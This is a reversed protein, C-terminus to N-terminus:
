KGGSSSHIDWEAAQNAADERSYEQVDERGRVRRQSVYHEGTGVTRTILDESDIHWAGESLQAANVDLPLGPQVIVDTYGRGNPDPSPDNIAQNNIDRVFFGNQAHLHDVDIVGPHPGVIQFEQQPVDHPQNNQDLITVNQASVAGASLALCALVLSTAHRM